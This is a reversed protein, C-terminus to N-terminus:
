VRPARSAPASRTLASDDVSAIEQFGAAREDDAEAEAHPEQGRVGGSRRAAGRGARRIRFLDIRPERDVGVVRGRKYMPNTSSPWPVVVASGCIAASSSSRVSSCILVTCVSVFTVGFWPPVYELADM